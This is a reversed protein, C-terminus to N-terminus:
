IILLECQVCTILGYQESLCEGDFSYTCNSINVADPPCYLSNIINRPTFNLEYDSYQGFAPYSLAGSINFFAIFISNTFTKWM